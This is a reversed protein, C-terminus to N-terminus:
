GSQIPVTACGNMTVNIGGGCIGVVLSDNMNKCKREKKNFTFRFNGYYNPTHFKKQERGIVDNRQSKTRKSLM